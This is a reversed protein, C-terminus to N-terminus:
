AGAALLPLIFELDRKSRAVTYIGGASEIIKQFRKQNDSQGNKGYKTEICWVRGSGPLIAYIDSSGKFGFRIFRGDETKVAGTNNECAPIGHRALWLLCDRKVRNEKAGM